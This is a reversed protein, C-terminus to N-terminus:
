ADRPDADSSAEWLWAVLEAHSAARERVVPGCDLNTGHCLGGAVEVVESEGVHAGCCECRLRLYPVIEARSHGFAPPYFRPTMPNASM